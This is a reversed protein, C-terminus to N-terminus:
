LTSGSLKSDSLKTISLKLELAEFSPKNFEVEAKQAVKGKNLCIQGFDPKAYRVASCTQSQRFVGPKASCARRTNRFM